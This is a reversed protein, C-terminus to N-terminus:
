NYDMLSSCQEKGMDCSLLKVSTVEFRDLHLFRRNKLGERERETFDTQSEVVDPSRIADCDFNWLTTVWSIRWHPNTMVVFGLLLTYSGVTQEQQAM